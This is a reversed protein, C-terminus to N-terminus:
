RTENWRCEQQTTIQPSVIGWVHLKAGRIFSFIGSRFSPNLKMILCLGSHVSLKKPHLQDLTFWAGRSHGWSFTKILFASCPLPSHLSSKASKAQFPPAPAACGACFSWLLLFWGEPAAWASIGSCFNGPLAHSVQLFIGTVVVGWLRQLVLIGQETDQSNAFSFFFFFGFQRGFHSKKWTIKHKSLISNSKRMFYCSSCCLSTSCATSSTFMAWPPGTAVRQPSFFIERCFLQGLEGEPACAQNEGM